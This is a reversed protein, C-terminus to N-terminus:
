KANQAVFINERVTEPDMSCRKATVINGGTSFACESSVSTAVCSFWKRAVRAVIPHDKAHKRWWELPDADVDTVRADAEYNRLTVVCIDHVPTASPRAIPANRQARRGYVAKTLRQKAKEPTSASTALVPANPLLGRAELETTEDIMAMLLDSRARVREDPNLHDLDSLRSDLMSVWLMTSDLDSFRATFLETLARRFQKMMAVVPTTVEPIDLERAAADFISDSDIQSKIHRLVPVVVTLTPYRSGSRHEVGAAFPELLRILCSIAFWHEPRPQTLKIRDFEEKGEPTSLYIFFMDVTSKLKIFHSLMKYTSSWRTPCDLAFLVRMGKQVDNWICKIRFKAKPPNRFYAALTRFVQVISRMTKMVQALDEALNSSAVHSAVEERADQQLDAITRQSQADLPEDDEDDFEEGRSETM